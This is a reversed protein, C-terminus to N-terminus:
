SFRFSTSQDFDTLTVAVMFEPILALAEDNVDVQAQAAFNAPVAKAHRTLSPGPRRRRPTVSM